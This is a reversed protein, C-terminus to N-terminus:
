YNAEVHEEGRGVKENTKCTYEAAVHLGEQHEREM